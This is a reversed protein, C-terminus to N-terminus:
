SVLQPEVLMGVLSEVTESSLFRSTANLIVNKSNSTHEGDSLVQAQYFNLM